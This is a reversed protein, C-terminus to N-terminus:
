GGLHTGNDTPLNTDTPRTPTTRSAPNRPSPRTARSDPSPRTNRWNSRSIQNRSRRRMKGIRSGATLTTWGPTNPAARGPFPRDPRAEVPGGTAEIGMFLGQHTGTLTDALAVDDETETLHNVDVRLDPFASRLETFLDRFGGLGTGQVPAPDHDVCDPAVVQDFAAHDGSNIAEGLRELAAINQDRGM